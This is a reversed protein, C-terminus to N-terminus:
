EYEELVARIEGVTLEADLEGIFRMISRKYNLIDRRSANAHDPIGGHSTPAATAMELAEIIDEPNM